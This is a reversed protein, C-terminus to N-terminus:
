MAGEKQTTIDYTACYAIMGLMLACVGGWLYVPLTVDHYLILQAAIAGTLTAGVWVLMHTAIVTAAALPIRLWRPIRRIWLIGKCCTNYLLLRLMQVVM